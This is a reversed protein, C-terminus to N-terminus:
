YGRSRQENSGRSITLFAETVDDFSQWREWATKKGIAKFSSVTDCGTFAHFVPLAAAKETGITRQIEHAAFIKKHEGVGLNVWVQKDPHRNCAAVALVLVDTDVTRLTVSVATGRLIQDMHLLM